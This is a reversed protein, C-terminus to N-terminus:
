KNVVKFKEPNSFLYSLTFKANGSILYSNIEGNVLKVEYWKDFSKVKIKFGHKLYELIEIAKELKLKNM